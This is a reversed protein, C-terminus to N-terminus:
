DNTVEEVLQENSEFLFLDLRKGDYKLYDTMKKELDNNVDSLRKDIILFTKGEPKKIMHKKLQLWEHMSYPDFIDLGFGYNWVEIEGNSLETLVNANWFSAYGNKTENDNLLERINLLDYNRVDNYMSKIWHGTNNFTLACLVVLIPIIYNNKKIIIGLVPVVFIFNMLLYRSTIATDSVFFISSVFASSAVFFMTIFIDNIDYERFRVLINVCMIFALVMFIIPLIRYLFYDITIFGINGSEFAFLRSWASLVEILRGIPDRTIYIATGYNDFSYIKSLFVKNILLGVLSVCFIIFAERIYNLYLKDFDTKRKILDKFCYLIMLLMTTGFLPAFLVVVMRFGALADFFVLLYLLITLIFKKSNDRVRKIFLTIIIFATAIYPIYYSGLLVFNMYEGSFAGVIMISLWSAHKIKLESCLFLFSFLLILDLIVIGLIRVIRWNKIFLFLFSFILQTNIVRIETSYYWNTSLIGKEESLLKSLILESSMDSDLLYDMNAYMLYHVYFFMIALLVYGIVDFCRNYDKKM